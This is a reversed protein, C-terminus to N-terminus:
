QRKKHAENHRWNKNFFVRYPRETLLSVPLPSIKQNCAQCFNSLLYFDTIRQLCGCNSCNFMYEETVTDQIIEFM